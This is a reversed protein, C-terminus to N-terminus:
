YNGDFKMERTDIFHTPKTEVDFWFQNDITIFFNNRGKHICMMTFNGSSGYPREGPAYVLYVGPKKMDLETIPKMKM